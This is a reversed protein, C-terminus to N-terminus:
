SGGIAFPECEMPARPVVRVETTGDYARVVAVATASWVWVAHCDVSGFGDSYSYDLYARAEQWSLIVGRREVPIAKDRPDSDEPDYSCDDIGARAIVCWLPRECLSAEIDAAFSERRDSGM